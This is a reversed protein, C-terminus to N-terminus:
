ERDGLLSSDEYGGAGLSKEMIKENRQERDGLLSPEQYGGARLSKEMIKKNRTEKILATQEKTKRKAERLWQYVGHHGYSLHKILQPSSKRYSEYSSPNRHGQYSV